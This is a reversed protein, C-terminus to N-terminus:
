WRSLTRMNLAARVPDVEFATGPVGAGGPMVAGPVVPGLLKRCAPIALAQLACALSDMLCYRATQYAPESEVTFNGAYDAVASLVGDPAPRLASKVQHACM